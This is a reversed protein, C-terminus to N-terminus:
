LSKKESTDWEMIYKVVRTSSTVDIHTAQLNRVFTSEDIKSLVVINRTLPWDLPKHGRRDMDPSGLPTAKANLNEALFM